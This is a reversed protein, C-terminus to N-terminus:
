DCHRIDNYRYKCRKKFQSYQCNGRYFQSKDIKEAYVVLGPIGIALSALVNELLRKLLTIVSLTGKNFHKQLFPYLIMMPFVSVVIAAMRAGPTYTIVQEM